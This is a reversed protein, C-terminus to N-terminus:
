GSRKEKEKEKEEMEPQNGRAAAQERRKVYAALTCGKM